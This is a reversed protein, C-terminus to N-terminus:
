NLIDGYRISSFNAIIHAWNQNYVIGTVGLVGRNALFTRVELVFVLLELLM